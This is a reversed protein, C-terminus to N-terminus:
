LVLNVIPSKAMFEGALRRSGIAGKPRRYGNIRAHIGSVSIRLLLEPTLNSIRTIPTVGIVDRQHSSVEDELMLLDDTATPNDGVQVFEIGLQNAPYGREIIKTIHEDIAWSLLDRDDAHGDTIVLLNLPMLDAITVYLLCTVMWFTM